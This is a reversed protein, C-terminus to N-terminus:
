CSEENDDAPVRGRGHAAGSVVVPIELGLAIEPQQFEGLRVPFAEREADEAAHQDAAGEEEGEQQDGLQDAQDVGAAVDADGGLADDGGFGDGTEALDRVFVIERDLLLFAQHRFDEGLRGVGIRLEGLEELLGTVGDLAEM